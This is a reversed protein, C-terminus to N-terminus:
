LQNLCQKVKVWDDLEAAIESFRSQEEPNYDLDLDDLMAECEVMRDMCFDATISEPNATVIQKVTESAFDIHAFCDSNSQMEALISAAKKNIYEVMQTRALEKNGNVLNVIASKLQKM